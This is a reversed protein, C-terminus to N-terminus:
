YYNGALVRCEVWGSEHFSVIALKMPCGGTLTRVEWERTSALNLLESCYFGISVPHNNLYKLDSHIEATPVGLSKALEVWSDNFSQLRGDQFSDSRHLQDVKRLEDLVGHDKIQGTIPRVLNRYDLDYCQLVWTIEEDGCDLFKLCLTVLYAWIYMKVNGDDIAPISISENKSSSAM